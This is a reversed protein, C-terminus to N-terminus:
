SQEGRVSVAVALVDESIDLSQLGSGFASLAISTFHFPESPSSIDFVDIRIADNNTVFLSHTPAYYAAIEAVSNDFTRDNVGVSALHELQLVPEQARAVVVFLFAFILGKIM